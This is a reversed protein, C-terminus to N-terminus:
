SSCHELESDYRQDGISGGWRVCGPAIATVPGAYHTYQGSDEDRVKGEPELYASAATSTGVDRTKITTVCKQSGDWLLNVAGLDGLSVQGIVSFGPGCVTESSSRYQAQRQGAEPLPPATALPREEDTLDPDLQAQVNESPASFWTGSVAPFAIAAVALISGLVVARIRRKRVARRGAQVVDGVQISSPPEDQVLHELLKRVIDQESAM